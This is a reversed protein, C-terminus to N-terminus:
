ATTTPASTATAASDTTAGSREIARVDTGLYSAIVLPDNRVVDPAGQAIVRGAELCYMHDSISTIFPMDHEIVVMAAGLQGRITVLLPALAETERQAVGATPEDLCLVSSGLALLCALEAIRRTGTSLEGIQRDAYRGLGLLGVIDDAEAFKAREARGAHPLFLATGVVGTRGRGELAVQVTERVTLDPFLQAAQFSRGLGASARAAPSRGTLDLGGLHVTGAAKVFGGIANLLTSKGAGNTGILGVITGPAVELSADDVAVKGGFRM